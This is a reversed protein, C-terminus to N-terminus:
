QAAITTDSSMSRRLGSLPIPNVEMGERIALLGTVIVTDGAQVGETLQVERPQRLGVEVRASVARGDRVLMVKQGQIDPILGETPIMLANEIRELKVDVRVFSGPLLDGDKNDARARVRVSRSTADVSPEVAYITGTHREASGEITFNITSGPRLGRGLREPIAFEVKIPDIQVLRALSNNPMVFGGQSVNRLGVTGDFPARITARSIRTRLLDAQAEMSIRQARAQDLQEQSIGNVALLQERRREDEQALTLNAEIQRLEAQLDAHDIAILVQGKKVKGGEDFNINTVRGQIESILEVEENPLLTGSVVIENDLVRPELVVTQVNLTPPAGPRGGGADAANGDGCASFVGIVALMLMSLKLGRVPMKAHMYTFNLNM